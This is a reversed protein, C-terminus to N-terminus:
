DIKCRILRTQKVGEYESHSKIKGYIEIYDGINISPCTSTMWSLINGNEDIFKYLTSNYSWFYFKEVMLVNITIENGIKSTLM